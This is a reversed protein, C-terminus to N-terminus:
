LRTEPVIARADRSIERRSQLLKSTLWGAALVTVGSWFYFAYPVVRSVKEPINSSPLETLLCFISNVMPSAGAVWLANPALKDDMAGIVSAVMLPVVGVFLMVLGLKGRGYTELITQFCICVAVILGGAILQMHLHMELGRFHPSHLMKTTFIAWAIASTAAMLITAWYSTAADSLPNLGSHGYKRARTWAKQQLERNSTCNNVLLCILLFSFILYVTSLATAEMPDIEKSFLQGRFRTRLQRSPFVAGSNILPLLNGLLIIHLWGNVLVAGLKGLLLASASRWRRTLMVIFTLIVGTQCFLVFYHASFKLNFFSADTILDRFREAARAADKPLFYAMNHEAVPTVSLYRFVPLGYKGLQPLVTYLAFVTGISVLFAWRRNKIVTGTVIGTLHYAVTCFFITIYFSGVVAGPVDGKVMCWLVLPVLSLAMLYERVPLGFLYGLVKGLPKMPVLRQYDLQGEDAEAIIGGAAQATGVVFLIFCQLILLAGMAWRENVQAVVGTEDDMGSARIVAFLFGGLLLTILISIVRATPRLRAVCYRIFIPNQWIKWVSPEPVATSPGSM